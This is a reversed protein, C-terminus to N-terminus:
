AVGSDGAEAMHPQAGAIGPAVLDEPGFQAIRANAVPGPRCRQKPDVLNMVPDSEERGREGANLMDIVLNLADVVEHAGPVGQTLAPYGNPESGPPM